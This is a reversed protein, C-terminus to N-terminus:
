AYMLSGIASAYPIKQVEQIELNGKPCQKLSFKDEKAVLTDKFKSEQMDFRKLVKEIYSRQSLGLIDRSRDQHIQIGLVFSADCLDKM